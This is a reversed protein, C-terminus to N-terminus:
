SELVARADNIDVRLKEVFMMRRLTEAAQADDREVDLARQVKAFMEREEERLSDSLRELEGANGAADEVAERWRMQETLFISSMATNREADIEIGRRSLLYRARSLPNRLTRYAENAHTAWQMAVRREVETKSVFRDPHVQAQVNRYAQELQPMDLEFREPMGFLSFYDIVQM